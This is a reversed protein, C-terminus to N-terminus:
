IGTFRSVSKVLIVDIDGNRALKLMKQFGHRESITTGSIGDDYYVGIFDWNPNLIAEETYYDIQEEISTELEAKDNSIRAYAAVKLRQGPIIKHLLTGEM